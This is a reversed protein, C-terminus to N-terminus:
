RRLHRELGENIPNHAYAFVVGFSISSKLRSSASVKFILIKLCVKPFRNNSNCNTIIEMTTRRITHPRTPRVTKHFLPLVASAIDSRLVNRIRNAIRSIRNGGGYFSLICLKQLM